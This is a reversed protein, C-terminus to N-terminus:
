TAALEARDARDDVARDDEAEQLRMRPLGAVGAALGHDHLGGQRKHPHQMAGAASGIGEGSLLGRRRWCPLATAVANLCQKWEGGASSIPSPKDM